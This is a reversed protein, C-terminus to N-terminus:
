DIVDVGMGDLLRAIEVKERFGPQEPLDACERLTLDCITVHKM